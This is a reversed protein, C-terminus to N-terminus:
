CDLKPQNAAKAYGIYTLGEVGELVGECISCCCMLYAYNVANSVRVYRGSKIVM